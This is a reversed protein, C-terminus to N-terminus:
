KNMIAADKRQRSYRIDILVECVVERVSGSGTVTSYGVCGKTLKRGVCRANSLWSAQKDRRSTCKHYADFELGLHRHIIMQLPAEGDVGTGPAEVHRAVIWNEHFIKM